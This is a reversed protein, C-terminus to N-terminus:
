YLTKLLDYLPALAQAKQQQQRLQFDQQQAQQATQQQAAQNHMNVEGQYQVQANQNAQNSSTIAQQRSTDAISGLGKALIAGAGRGFVGSSAQGKGAYLSRLSTLAGRTQQGVMDKSRGFSAQDATATDPAALQPTAPNWTQAAVENHRGPPAAGGGLTKTTAELIRRLRDDPSPSSPMGVYDAYVGM